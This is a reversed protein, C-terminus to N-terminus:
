SKSFEHYPFHKLYQLSDINSVTSLRSESTNKTIEEMNRGNRQACLIYTFSSKHVNKAEFYM